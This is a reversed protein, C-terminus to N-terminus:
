AAGKATSRAGRMFELLADAHGVAEGIAQEIAMYTETATRWDAAQAAQM